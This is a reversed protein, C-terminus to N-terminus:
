CHLDELRVAWWQVLHEPADNDEEEGDEADDDVPEEGVTSTM